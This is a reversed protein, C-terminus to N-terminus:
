EGVLLPLVEAEAAVVLPLEEHAVEPRAWLYSTMIQRCRYATLTGSM